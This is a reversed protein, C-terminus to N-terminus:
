SFKGWARETAGWIIWGGGIIFLALALWGYINASVIGTALLTVPVIMALYYPGTYRCHTRGCRQANLICAVGMWVLAISWVAARLPVPALLAVVIAGKPIWWALVNSRANGVWDRTASFAKDSMIKSRAVCCQASTAQANQKYLRVHCQGMLASCAAIAGNRNSGRVVARVTM